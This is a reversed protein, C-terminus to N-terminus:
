HTKRNVDSNAANDFSDAFIGDGLIRLSYVHRDRYSAVGVIYEGLGVEVASVGYRLRTFNGIYDTMAHSAGTMGDIVQLHRGSFFLLQRISGNPLSMLDAGHMAPLQRGLHITRIRTRSNTDFFHITRRDSMLSAFQEPADIPTLLWTNIVSDSGPNDSPNIISSWLQEHTQPDYGSIMNTNTSIVEGGQLRWLHRCSFTIPSTWLLAGTQYDYERIRDVSCVWITRAIESTDQIVIGDSPFVSSGDGDILHFKRLLTGSAADLVVVIGGGANDHGTIVIEEQDYLGRQVISVSHARIEPDDPDLYDKEWDIEGTLANERKVKGWSYSPLIIFYGESDTNRSAAVIDVLRREGPQQISSLETGSIADIAKITSIGDHHRQTLLEPRSDGDIDALAILTDETETVLDRTSQTLVDFIKIVSESRERYVIEDAGDADIDGARGYHARPTQGSWITEWPAPRILFGPTGNAFIAMEGDIFRGALLSGSMDIGMYHSATQFTAGDVVHIGNFGDNFLLELAPDEDLQAVIDSAYYSPTQRYTTWLLEGTALSNVAVRHRAFRIVEAEGDNNIDRVLLTEAELPLELNTVFSKTLPWGSFVTISNDTATAINPIGSISWSSAVLGLSHLRQKVELQNKENYGIVHITSNFEYTTALVFVVDDRGDGDFDINNEILPIGVRDPIPRLEALEVLNARSNSCCFLIATLALCNAASVRILM